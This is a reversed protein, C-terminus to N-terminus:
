GVRLWIPGKGACMEDTSLPEMHKFSAIHKLWAICRLYRTQSMSLSLCDAQFCPPTWEWEVRCRQPVNRCCVCREPGTWGKPLLKKAGTRASSDPRKRSHTGVEAAFTKSSNRIGDGDSSCYLVGRELPPAPFCISIVNPLDTCSRGQLHLEGM